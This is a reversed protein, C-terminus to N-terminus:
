GPLENLQGSTLAAPSPREDPGSTLAAPTRAAMRAPIALATERQIPVAM